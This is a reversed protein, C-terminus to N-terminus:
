NTAVIENIAPPMNTAFKMIGIRSRSLYSDHLSFICFRFFDPMGIEFYANLIRCTHVFRGQMMSWPMIDFVHNRSNEKADYEHFRLNYAPEPYLLHEPQLTKM